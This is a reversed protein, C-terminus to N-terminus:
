LLDVSNKESDPDCEIFGNFSGLRFHIMQRFYNIENIEDFGRLPTDGPLLWPLTSFHHARYQMLEKALFIVTKLLKLSVPLKGKIKGCLSYNSGM